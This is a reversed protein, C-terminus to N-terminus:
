FHGLYTADQAANKIQFIIWIPYWHILQAVKNSQYYLIWDNDLLISNLYRYIM